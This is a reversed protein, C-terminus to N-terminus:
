QSMNKSASEADAPEQLIKANQVAREAHNAIDQKREPSLGNFWFNFLSTEQQQLHTLCQGFYAFEDVDDLPSTFDDLDNTDSMGILQDKFEQSMGQLKDLLLEEDADQKTYAIKSPKSTKSSAASTMADNAGEAEADVEYEDPVDQDEGIDNFFEADEDEDDEDEEDDSADQMETIHCLAKIVLEMIAPFGKVVTEPLNKVPVQCLSSLGLVAFKLTRENKSSNEVYSLWHNFTNELTPIDKSLISIFLHPNYYCAAGIVDILVFGLDKNKTQFLKQTAIQLTFEIIHDVKGRHHALIAELIFTAHQCENEMHKDQFITNVMELLLKLYPPNQSQLLRDGGRSIYNHLPRMLETLFDPFHKHNDILRPLLSWSFESITKPYYVFCTVMELVNDYMDM